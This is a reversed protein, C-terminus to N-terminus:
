DMPFTTFYRDARTPLPPNLDELKLYLPTPPPPPPNCEAGTIIKILGDLKLAAKFIPLPSSVVLGRITPVWPRKGNSLFIRNPRRFCSPLRNVLKGYFQLM